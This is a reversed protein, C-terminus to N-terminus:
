AIATWHLLLATVAYVEDPKLTEGEGSALVIEPRQRAYEEDVDGDSKSGSEHQDDDGRGDAPCAGHQTFERSEAEAHDEVHEVRQEADRDEGREVTEEDLAAIELAHHVPM